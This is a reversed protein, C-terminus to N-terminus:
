SLWFEPLWMSGDFLKSWMGWVKLGALLVNMGFLGWMVVPVFHRGRITGQEPPPSLKFTRQDLLPLLQERTADRIQWDRRIVRQLLWLVCAGGVLFIISLPGTRSMGGTFVAAEIVLLVQTRAWGLKDQHLYYTGLWRFIENLPVKDKAEVTPQSAPLGDAM